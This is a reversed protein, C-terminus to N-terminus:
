SGAAGCPAPSLCRSQAPGSVGSTKCTALVAEEPKLSVQTLEPKQYARKGSRESETESSMTVEKWIFGKLARQLEFLRRHLM